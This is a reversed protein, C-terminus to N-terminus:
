SNDKIRIVQNAKLKNGKIKNLKRIENITVGHHKAISAITDGKKVKYKVVKEQANEEAQEKGKAAKGKIKTKEPVTKKAYGRAPVRLVKGVSVKKSSLDNYEMIDIVSTKYRRAIGKLSEGKKVKHRVLMPGSGKSAVAVARPPEWRAIDDIGELVLKGMGGPVKLNYPKDPTLQLKLESNLAAMVEKSVNLHQAIDQIRMCKDIKVSEYPIPKDLDENLDMGYKKPDRMIHLTALFRPVYRATENPLQRYLDWFHDLYNIHQKSIVRLVRGEGCNYAALCTLWDGFIGHLEKLYAIAAKTSKEVDLREDVWRDRQLSFKYGTSPIFQWLGLARASSLANCQFGSEVLPLWSLEKPLGAEQLYKLIVPRFQGSRQYSRIFFGREVTQFSRIEREVDANMIMPIESQKGTTVRYKSTSIEIIRKSIILRLDDKQRAIEPEGNVELILAYAEDLCRLSNDIDGKEWFSQSQNLLELAQDLTEQQEQLDELSAQNGNEAIADAKQKVSNEKKIHEKKSKVDSGTPVPDQITTSVVAQPRQAEEPSSAAYIMRAPKENKVSAVEQSAPSTANLPVSACSFLFVLTVSFLVVKRFIAM